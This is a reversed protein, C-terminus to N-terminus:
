NNRSGKKGGKGKGKSTNKPEANYDSDNYNESRGRKWDAGSSWSADSSRKGQSQLARCEFKGHGWKRCHSCRHAYKCNPHTCTGEQWKNCDETDDDIKKGKGKGKPETRFTKEPTSFRQKPVGRPSASLQRRRDGPREERRENPQKVYARLQEQVWADDRMILDTADTFTAGNRMDMAIRWAAAEWMSKIQPLLRPKERTQRIFFQYWAEVAKETSLEVFIYAYKVAELGDEIARQSRPDWEKPDHEIFKGDEFGFTGKEKKYQTALSNIRGTSTFSRATLIEGLTTPTYMKSVTHEHYMRALVSEAGILLKTPFERNIGNIQVANYKDLQAVWISKDLQKPAKTTTTTAAVVAVGGPPLITPPIAAQIAALRVQRDLERAHACSEWLEIVMARWVNTDETDALKHATGAIDIGTVYPDAINLIAEATSTAMLAVLAPTIMRRARLYTKMPDTFAANNCLTDIEAPLIAVSVM